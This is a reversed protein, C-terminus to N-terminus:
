RDQGQKIYRLVSAKSSCCSQLLPSCISARPEWFGCLGAKLGYFWPPKNTTSCAYLTDSIMNPFVSISALLHHCRDEKCAIHLWDWLDFHVPQIPHLILRSHTADCCVMDTSLRSTWVCKKDTIGLKSVVNLIVRSLCRWKQRSQLKLSCVVNKCICM